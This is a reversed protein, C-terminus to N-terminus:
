ALPSTSASHSPFRRSLTRGFWGRRDGCVAYAQQRSCMHAVGSCDGRCSSPTHEQLWTINRIREATAISRLANQVFPEREAERACNGHYLSSSIDWLLHLWKHPGAAVTWPVLRYRIARSAERQLSQFCDAPKMRAAVVTRRQQQSDWSPRVAGKANQVEASRDAGARSDQRHRGRAGGAVAFGSRSIKGSIESQRNPTCQIRMLECQHWHDHNAVGFSRVSRKIQDRAM